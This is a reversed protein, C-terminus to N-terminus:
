ALNRGATGDLFSAYHPQPFGALYLFGGAGFAWSGLLRTAFGGAREGIIPQLRELSSGAVLTTRVLGFAVVRRTRAGPLAAGLRALRRKRGPAAHERALREAAREMVWGGCVRKALFVRLREEHRHDVRMAPWFAVRLGLAEAERGFEADEARRSDPNFALCDFVERRAAMNKTDVGVRQGARWRKRPAFSAEILRAGPTEALGGAAGRLIDAGTRRLGEIAASPWGPHVVCDADTFLLVDGSAAAVGANRAAAAGPTPEDVVHVGPKLTELSARFARASGNDVVIVELELEPGASAQVSAVCHFIPPDDKVPIVVSARM